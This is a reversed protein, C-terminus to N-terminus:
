CPWRGRRPRDGAAVQHHVQALVDAEGDRRWGAQLEAVALHGRQEDAAPGLDVDGAVPGRHVEVELDGGRRHRLERAALGVGEQELVHRVEVVDPPQLLKPGALDVDEDPGEALHHRRRVAVGDGHGPRGRVQVLVADRARRDRQPPSRLVPLQLPLQVLHDLVQGPVDEAGRSRHVDRGGVPQSGREVLRARQPHTLPRGGGHDVRVPLEVGDGVQVGAVGRHQRGAARGVRDHVADRQPPPQGLPQHRLAVAHAALPATPLGPRERPDPRCRVRRRPRHQPEEVALAEGVPPHGTTAGEVRDVARELRHRAEVEAQQPAGNRHGAVVPQLQLEADTRVAGVAPDEQTEGVGLEGAEVVRRPRGHPGAELDLDVVGAARPVPQRRARLM